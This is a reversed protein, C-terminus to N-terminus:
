SSRASRRALRRASGLQHCRVRDLPGSPAPPRRGEAAAQIDDLALRDPRKSPGHSGVRDHDVGAGTVSRLPAAPGAPSGARRMRSRGPAASRPSPSRPAARDPGTPPAAPRTAPAQCHPCAGARRRPQGAGDACTLGASAGAGSGAASRTRRAMSAAEHLHLGPAVVAAREAGDREAAAAVAADGIGSTSAWTAWKTSRPTCSTTSVPTSMALWASPIPATAADTSRPTGPRLRSRRDETSGAARSAGNHSSRAPSGRSIGCRCRESCDPDPRTSLRMRRRWPGASASSTIARARRSRGSTAIPASRIAPKGVSVSASAASVSRNTASAAM